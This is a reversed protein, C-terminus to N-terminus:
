MAVLKSPEITQNEDTYNLFYLFIKCHPLHIIREMSFLINIFLATKKKQIVAISISDKVGGVGQQWTSSSNHKLDIPM